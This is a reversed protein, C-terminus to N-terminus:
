DLAMLGALLVRILEAQRRTQTKEFIGSLRARATGYTIGLKAAASRLEDGAGLLAALRAEAETLGFAARLQESRPPADSDPDNIIIWVPLLPSHTARDPAIPAVVLIYPRKGSPRPVRTTGGASVSAALGASRAAAILGRIREDDHKGLLTLGQASLSIGDRAACLREASRNAYIVQQHEDLLLMATPSRDLLELACRQLSALRDPNKPEM